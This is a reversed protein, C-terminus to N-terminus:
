ALNQYIGLNFKEHFNLRIISCATRAASTGTQYDFAGKPKRHTDFYVKYWVVSASTAKLRDETVRHWLINSMHRHLM